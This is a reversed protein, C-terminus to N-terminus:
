GNARPDRTAIIRHSIGLRVMYADFKGMYEGGRDSRMIGPAGYCCVITSHFWAATAHSDLTPLIGVEVWKTFCDIVVIVDKAGGPAM